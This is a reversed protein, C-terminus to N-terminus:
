KFYKQNWSMNQKPSFGKEIKMEVSGGLERSFGVLHTISMCPVM